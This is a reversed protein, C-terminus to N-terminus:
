MLIGSRSNGMLKMLKVPWGLTTLKKLIIWILRDFGTLVNLKIRYPNGKYFKYSARFKKFM